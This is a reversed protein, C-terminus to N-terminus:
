DLAALKRSLLAVHGMEQGIIEDIKASGFAEPVLRKMGSYFLISEQERELAFTLVDKMTAKKPLMAAADAGAKFINGGAIAQLYGSVEDNPEFWGAGTQEGLAREKLMRFTKEHGDEMAALRELVRRNAPDDTLEIVRRYYASGNREIQIAIDFIQGAHFVASLKRSIAHCLVCGPARRRFM